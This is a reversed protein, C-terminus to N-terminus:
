VTPLVVFGDRAEGQDADRCDLTEVRAGPPGMRCLEIMREVSGADGLFLAEVSGERRNRAWGRLQLRIAEREVFARFGVGQVRGHVVVHRASTM